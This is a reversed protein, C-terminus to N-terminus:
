ACFEYEYVVNPYAKILGNKKLIRCIVGRMRETMEMIRRCPEPMMHRIWETM